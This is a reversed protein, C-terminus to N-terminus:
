LVSKRRLDHDHFFKRTPQQPLSNEAEFIVMYDYDDIVKPSTKANNCDYGGVVVLMEPRAKRVRAIIENAVLRNTGHLSLGLIKPNAAILREATRDIEKRFYDVYDQNYWFDEVTTVGWPDTPIERGSTTYLKEEGDLLRRAHYRHYFIMDLDLTQFRCNTTKLINHVYGLGNSPGEM